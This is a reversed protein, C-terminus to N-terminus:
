KTISSPINTGVVRPRVAIGARQASFAPWHIWCGDSVEFLNLVVFLPLKLLLLVVLFDDSLDVWGM